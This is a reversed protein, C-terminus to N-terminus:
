IARGVSRGVALLDEETEDRTTTATALLRGIFHHVLLHKKQTKNIRCKEQLDGVCKVCVRAEHMYSYWAFVSAACVCHFRVDCEASYAGSPACERVMVLVYPVTLPDLFEIRRHPWMVLDLINIRTHALFLFFVSALFFFPVRTCNLHQPMISAAKHKTFSM